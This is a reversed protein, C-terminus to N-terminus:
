LMLLRINVLEFDQCWFGDQARDKQWGVGNVASNFVGNHLYHCPLFTPALIQCFVQTTNNRERTMTRFTNQLLYTQLVFDVKKLKFCDFQYQIEEILGLVYYEVKTYYGQM